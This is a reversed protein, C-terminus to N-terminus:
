EDFCIFQAVGDDAGGDLNMTELPRAQDFANILLAEEAFQAEVLQGGDVLANDFDFVLSKDEFLREAKVNQDFAAQQEFEFRDLLDQWDVLRLQEAVHFQQVDGYAEQDVEMFQLQHITDV